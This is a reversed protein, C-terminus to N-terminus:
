PGSFTICKVSTHIWNSNLESNSKFEIQIWIQISSMKFEIRFEFKFELWSNVWQTWESSIFSKFEFQIWSSTMVDDDDDCNHDCHSTMFDKVALHHHCSWWTIVITIIVYGQLWHNWSMMVITIVIHHWSIRSQLTIVYSWMTIVITITSIVKCHSSEHCWWLTIDHFGQSCPSSSMIMMHDHLSSWKEYLHDLLLPICKRQMNQCWLFSWKQDNKSSCAGLKLSTLTYVKRSKFIFNRAAKWKQLCM